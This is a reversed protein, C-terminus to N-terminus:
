ETQKNRREGSHRERTSYSNKARLFLEKKEWSASILSLSIAADQKLLKILKKKLDASVDNILRRKQKKKLFLCSGIVFTMYSENYSVNYM